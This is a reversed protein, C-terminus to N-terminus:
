SQKKEAPKANNQTIDGPHGGIADASEAAEQARQLEEERKLDPNFKDKRCIIQNNFELNIYGYKDWGTKKLGYKYFLELRKLRSGVYDDIKAQLEARDDATPLQGIYVIHEGVRPVLEIGGNELVNIQEIQANWFESDTITQALIALSQMAFKKSFKGTAIILDSNYNQNPVIGGNDDLYYDQGDDSKIRIVPLRQTVEIYVLSDKSKHCEATNIFPSNMLKDEISRPEINDMKKDLPYMDEKKLLKKIENVDLFGNTNEDAIRINVLRCVKDSEDPNNLVVMALLLYLLLAINIAIFIYKRWNM